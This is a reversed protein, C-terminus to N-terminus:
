TRYESFTLFYLSQFTSVSAGTIIVFSSDTPNTGATRYRMAFVTAASRVLRKGRSAVASRSFIIMKEIKVANSSFTECNM